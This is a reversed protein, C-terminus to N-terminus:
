AEPRPPPKVGEILRSRDLHEQGRRALTAIRMTDGRAVAASGSRPEGVETVVVAGLDSLWLLEENVWDRSRNIGWTVLEARLLESNMSGSPDRALAQLIRLRAEERVVAAFSM